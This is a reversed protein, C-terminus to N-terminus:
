SRVELKDGALNHVWMDNAIHAVSEHYDSRMTVYYDRNAQIHKLIEEQSVSGVMSKVKTKFEHFDARRVETRPDFPTVWGGELNPDTFQSYPRHELFYEDERLDRGLLHIMCVRHIGDRIWKKGDETQVIAILSIRNPNHKKLSEENFWGGDCVFEWMGLLEEQSLRCGDQLPLLDTTKV